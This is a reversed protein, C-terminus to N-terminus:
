KRRSSAAGGGSGGFTISVGLLFGLSYWGGSNHVDFVTVQDSFLSIVFTVPSILGHWLGAWFGAVDGEQDPVDVLQNPGPACASLSLVVMVLVLVFWTKTM